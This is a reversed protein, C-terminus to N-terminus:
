ENHWVSCCAIMSDTSSGLCATLALSCCCHCECYSTDTLVCCFEWPNDTICIICIIICFIILHSSLVFLGSLCHRLLCVSWDSTLILSHFICWCKSRNFYQPQKSEVPSTLAGGGFALLCACVCVCVCVCAYVHICVWVWVWVRARVCVCVCARVPMRVCARVCARVCVRVCVCMCM